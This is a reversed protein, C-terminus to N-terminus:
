ADGIEGEYRISIAKDISKRGVCEEAEASPSLVRQLSHRCGSRFFRGAYKRVIYLYLLNIIYCFYSFEYGEYEDM